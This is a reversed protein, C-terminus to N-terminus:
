DFDLFGLSFKGKSKLGDRFEKDLTSLAEEIKKVRAEIVDGAKQLKEELEKIRAELPKLADAILGNVISVALKDNEGAM